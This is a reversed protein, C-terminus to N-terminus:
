SHRTGLIAYLSYAFKLITFFSILSLPIVGAVTPELTRSWRVMAVLLMRRFYPSVSLWDSLYVSYVVSQSEYHILSGFYCYLFVQNSIILLVVFMFIFPVSFIPTCSLRNAIMCITLSSTLFQFSVAPAFVKNIEKTYWALKDFRQIFYVLRRKLDPDSMDKYRSRMHRTDVDMDFLCQLNNKIIKLQVVTQAYYASILCDLTLHGYGIWLLPVVELAVTISYGGWTDTSFPAYVPVVANQDQYRRVFHSAPWILGCMCVCINMIKSLQHMDTNNKILHEEDKKNKAEFIPDNIVKNIEAIRSTQLNLTLHKVILNLQPIEIMLSDFVDDLNNIKQVIFLLHEVNYFISILFSLLRYIGHGIWKWRNKPKKM